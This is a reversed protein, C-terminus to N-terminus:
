ELTDKLVRPINIFSLVLALEDTSLKDFSLPMMHDDAAVVADHSKGEEIRQRKKPHPM